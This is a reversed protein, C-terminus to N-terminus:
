HSWIDGCCVELMEASRSLIYPKDIIFLLFDEELILLDSLVETNHRLQPLTLSLLQPHQIILERIKTEHLQFRKLIEVISAITKWDGTLLVGPSETLM